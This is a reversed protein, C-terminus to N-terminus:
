FGIDEDVEAEGEREPQQEKMTGTVVGERFARAEHVIDVAMASFVEEVSGARALKWGYWSGRDNSEPVTSAQYVHAFMPPRFSRGEANKFRIQRMESMWRRSKKIQTSVLAIVAPTVEGDHVVLVYHKHTDSLEHGTEKVVIRNNEDRVARSLISQGLIKEADEISMEGIYGGGETRPIWETVTRRYHVPVIFLPRDGDYLAGTVTNLIQGKKAEPLFEGKTEDLQKSKADLIQLFPIAYSDADAEEYGADADELYLDHVEALAADKKTMQKPM